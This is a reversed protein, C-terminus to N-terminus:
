SFAPSGVYVMKGNSNSKTTNKDGCVARCSFVASYILTEVLNWVSFVPVHAPFNRLSFCEYCITGM